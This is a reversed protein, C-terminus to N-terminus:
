WLDRCLLHPFSSLIILMRLQLVNSSLHPHTRVQLQTSLQIVSNLPVIWELFQSFFGLYISNIKKHLTRLDQRATKTCFALVLVDIWSNWLMTRFFETIITIMTNICDRLTRKIKLINIFSFNAFTWLNIKIYKYNREVNMKQRLLVFFLSVITSYEFNFFFCSRADAKLRHFCCFLFCSALFCKKWLRILFTIVNHKSYIL